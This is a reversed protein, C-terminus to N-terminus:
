CMDIDMLTCLFYLECNCSGLYLSFLYFCIVLICHFIISECLFCEGQYFSRVNCLIGNIYINCMLLTMTVSPYLVLDYLNIELLIHM